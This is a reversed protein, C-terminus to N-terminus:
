AARRARFLSAGIALLSLLIPIAAINIFKLKSGLREINKQLDHQVARLQKRTKLQEGRFLEIEKRQEPSLLAEGGGEPKRQLEKLKGEADKLKTQLAQEQDRFQAEAERQIQAVVKFPRSYEGRSRLSILDDNGGLNDVANILFDANNAFPNPVQMGLFREVRVWFRDALIDTDAVVIINIPGKSVKLHQPNGPGTKSKEDLPQGDPFASDVVGTIRAALTLNPKDAKFNKLLGTPDRVIVIADRSLVGSSESTSLLPTFTTKADKKHELIGASGLNITKLQNTIFDTHNLRAGRLQLWPLYNVEQPGRNGGFSVRVASEADGAVQDPAMSIGWKDFLEKLNSDVKPMVMPNNPDQPPHDEEALPDVFIMAKGGRLVFQDIAYLAGRPLDKPHVILLTDIDDDIKTLQRDLPKLDFFEKLMDFSAWAHGPEGTQPNPAGGLVPLDSLVGVVRKKPNALNYVLKTVEYELADARDPNLLPIALEQDTANTGVLGLYGMAGTADLPLQQIGYGVAQDEADSFPEPEIVELKLQKKSAAVYEELLDRVRKGYALFQPVGAFQKASFYLRLTVPEDLKGVINRSGQSLTYLRNSTLDLRQATLTENAIINVGVFLALAILFSYLAQSRKM